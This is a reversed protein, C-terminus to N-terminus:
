VAEIGKWFVEFCGEMDSCGEEKSMLGASLGICTMLYYFTKAMHGADLPQLEKKEIGEEMVKILDDMFAKEVFQTAKVIEERMMEPPFYYVSNWFDMEINNWNYDLYQQYIEMLRMKSKLDKSEEMIKKLKSQYKLVITSFVEHFIDEKSKFHFYLTAKNLGVESAIKDMRAGEYGHHAFIDLAAQIIRDKTITGHGM